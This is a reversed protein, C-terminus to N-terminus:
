MGAMFVKRAAAHMAMTTPKRSDPFSAAAKPNATLPVMAM